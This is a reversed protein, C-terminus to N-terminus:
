ETGAPPPSRAAVRPSISVLPLAEEDECENDGDQEQAYEGKAHCGLVLGLLIVVFHLVLLIVLHLLIRPRDDRVPLHGM